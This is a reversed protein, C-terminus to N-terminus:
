RALGLHVIETVLLLGSVGAAVAVRLLRMRNLGVRQVRQTYQDALAKILESSAQM